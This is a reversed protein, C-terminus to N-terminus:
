IKEQQEKRKKWKYECGIQRVTYSDRIPYSWDSLIYTKKMGRNIDGITDKSCNYKEALEEYSMRTNKLLEHLELCEAPSLKLGKTGKTNSKRIPYEIGERKRRKGTNINYIHTMSIGTKEIIDKYSYSEDKLMEIVLDIKEETFIPQTPNAGGITQNYGNFYTDYFAIWYKERENLQEKLLNSELIILEYEEEGYKRIGRSLPYDYEKVNIDFPDYKIHKKHRTELEVTQGVYVIKQTSRKKYAYIVNHTEM